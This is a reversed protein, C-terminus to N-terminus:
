LETCKRWRPWSRGEGVNPAVKVRCEDSCFAPYGTSKKRGAKDTFYRRVGPRHAMPSGCGPCPKAPWHRPKMGEATVGMSSLIQWVRQRSIGARRAVSTQMENQNVVAEFIEAHTLTAKKHQVKSRDRSRQWGVKPDMRPGM